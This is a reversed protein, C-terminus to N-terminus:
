RHLSPMRLDRDPMISSIPQRNKQHLHPNIITDQVHQIYRDVRFKTYIAKSSFSRVTGYIPKTFWPRDHLGGLSWAIGTYGNPDCGDLQYKDNLYVAIEFADAPKKTWELIKKCWYMRLYGHMRGSYVMELQATNWLADHTLGQELQERTYRYARKDQQHEKLTQKAWRPICRFSTHHHNHFCFNYALDRKVILQELFDTVADPTILSKLFRDVSLKKHSLVQLTIDVPSIMGFHLYASLKSTRELTPDNRTADYTDLDHHLFRALQQQAASEGGIFPAPQITHNIHLRAVEKSVNFDPPLFYAPYTFSATNHLPSYVVEELAEALVKRIKSRITAASWEQKPFYRLPVVTCSDVLTYKVPCQEAAAKNAHPTVFSPYDDSVVCVAKKMLHHLAPQQQGHALYFGYNIGLNKFSTYLDKVGQLIFTHMRDSAYPYDEQLEQYVVLPVNYRNAQELAYHLAFNFRTRQTMQMWYLVYDGTSDEPTTNLHFIRKEALGRLRQIDKTKWFPLSAM